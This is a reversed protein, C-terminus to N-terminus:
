GFPDSAVIPQFALMAKAHRVAEDVTQLISKERVANAFALPSEEEQAVDLRNLRV